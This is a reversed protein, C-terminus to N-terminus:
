PHAMLYVAALVFGVSAAVAFALLPNAYRGLLRWM